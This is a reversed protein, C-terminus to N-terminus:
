EIWAGNCDVRYGDPTVTDVLLGGSDNFYYWIGGIKQWGTQMCGGEDDLYYWIGELNIWGTQMYGNGDFHYWYDGVKEWENIPFSGDSRKYWWKQKWEGSGEILEGEDDSTPFYFWGVVGNFDRTVYRAVGGVQLSDANGDVNQEVTRMTYGDSDDIVVGTHGYPHGYIVSTDMVFVAGACPKSDVNGVENYEVRYGLAKASDLLNIANGWLARNFFKVSLYNPLDVCQFGFVGDQDVGLGNDALYKVENVIDVAKVM